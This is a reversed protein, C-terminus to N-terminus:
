HMEKKDHGIHLFKFETMVVMCTQTLIYHNHKNAKLGKRERYSLESYTLGM